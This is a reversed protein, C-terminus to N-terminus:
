NLTNYLYQYQPEDKSKVVYKTMDVEEEPTETAVTWLSDAAARLAGVVDEQNTRTDNFAHIIRSQVEVSVFSEVVDKVIRKADTSAGEMLEETALEIAGLICFRQPLKKDDYFRGKIWGDSILDCSREAIGAALVLANEFNKM